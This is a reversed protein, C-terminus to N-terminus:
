NVERTAARDASAPKDAPVCLAKLAALGESVDLGNIKRFRHAAHMDTGDFRVAGVGILPGTAFFDLGYLPVFFRSGPRYVERVIYLRGRELPCDFFTKEGISHDLMWDPRDDICVVREGVEFM